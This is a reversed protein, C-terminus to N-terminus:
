RLGVGTALQGPTMRQADVGAPPTALGDSMLWKGRGMGTPWLGSGDDFLFLLVREGSSFRAQGPVFRLRAGLRGGQVWLTVAPAAPGKLVEHVRISVRTHIGRHGSPGHPFTNVATVTGVLLLDSMEALAEPSVDVHSTASAEPPLVALLVTAAASALAVGCRSAWSRRVLKMESLMDSPPAWNFLRKSGEHVPIRHSPTLILVGSWGLGLGFGWYNQAM